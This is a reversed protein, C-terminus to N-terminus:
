LCSIIIMGGLGGLIYSKYNFYKRWTSSKHKLLLSNWDANETQVDSARSTM